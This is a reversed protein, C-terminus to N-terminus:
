PASGVWCLVLGYRILFEGIKNIVGDMRTVATENVM